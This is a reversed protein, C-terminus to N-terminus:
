DILDEDIEEDDDGDNDSESVNEYFVIARFDAETSTSANSQDAVATQQSSFDFETSSTTMSPQFRRVNSTNGSANEHTKKHTKQCGETDCTLSARKKAPAASFQSQM